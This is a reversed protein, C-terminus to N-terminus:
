LSLLGLSPSCGGNEKNSPPPRFSITRKLNYTARTILVDDEDNFSMKM